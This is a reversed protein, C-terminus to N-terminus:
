NRFTKTTTMMLVADDDDDDDDDDDYRDRLQAWQQGAGTERIWFDRWLDAMIGETLQSTTYGTRVFSSIVVSDCRYFKLKINTTGHMM